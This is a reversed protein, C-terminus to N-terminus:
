FPFSLFFFRLSLPLPDLLKSLTTQYLGGVVELAWALFLSFSFSLSLSLIGHSLAPENHKDEKQESEKIRQQEKARIKKM